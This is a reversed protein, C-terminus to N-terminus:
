HGGNGVRYNMGWSAKPIAFMDCTADATDTCTYTNLDDSTPVELHTFVGFKSVNTYYMYNFTYTGEPVTEGIRPDKPESELYGKHILGQAVSCIYNQSPAVLNFWGSGGSLSNGCLTNTGSVTDYVYYSGTDDRNMRAASSIVELDAKRRFDRSKAQAKNYSVVAVAALVGIIAVVILLEILTFGRKSRRNFFM